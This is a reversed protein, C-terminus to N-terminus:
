RLFSMVGLLISFLIFLILARGGIWLDTLERSAVLWWAPLASGSREVGFSDPTMRVRSDDVNQKDSM